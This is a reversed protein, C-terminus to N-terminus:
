AVSKPDAGDDDVEDAEASTAAEAAESAAHVSLMEAHAQETDNLVDIFSRVTWTTSPGRDKMRKRLAAQKRANSDLNLMGILHGHVQFSQKAANARLWVDAREMYDLLQDLHESDLPVNAAKLEVIVLRGIGSNGLLFVLDPRDSTGEAGPEAHTSIALEKALREFLTGIGENASVTPGYTSDILWPAKELLEQVRKEEKKDAFKADLVIKKLAVIANVRGRAISVFGGLEEHSLQVIKAAVRALEPHEEAALSAIAALVNGQGIGRIIEPYKTKYIPDGVGQKCAAALSTGIRLALTRDRGALGLKNIAATTFEDNKVIGPMVGDRTKQYQKCAERIEGELFEKLPALLPSEWRLSERDTAIFDTPHNDLFDAEVVGDLYDTMRFGHMNTDAEFLSPASALRGRAYVRVGRRQGVLSQEPKTFRMRYKFPIKTGEESAFDADILKTLATEPQPWAYAFERVMPEIVTGNVRIEFDEKRIMEFHEALEGQITDKKSKTPDYLLESLVIRTGSTAFGGGDELREDHVDIEDTTRKKVLDDYVLVIKTAHDEGAKRSIVEVRKAVGFGALKGLGKRGMILRQKDTRLDADELRRRRGAVLFKRAIDARSMGCGADVISITISPPLTQTALAEVEYGESLATKQKAAQAKRMTTRAEVIADFDIAVEATPSDADYANAVFEALVRPLSTYLNLGLDEVIHPAVKFKLPDLDSYDTM